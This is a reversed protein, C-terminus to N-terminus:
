RRLISPLRRFIFGVDTTPYELSAYPIHLEVALESYDETRMNPQNLVNLYNINPFNRFLKQISEKNLKNIRQQEGNRSNGVSLWKLLPFYVSDLWYFVTNGESTPLVGTESLSLATLPLKTLGLLQVGTIPVGILDLSTLCPFLACCNIEATYLEDFIKLDNLNCRTLPGEDSLSQPLQHSFRQSLQLVQEEKAPDGPIIFRPQLTQGMQSVKVVTKASKMKRSLRELQNSEFLLTHECNLFDLGSDQLKTVFDQEGAEPLEINTQHHFLLTKLNPYRQEGLLRLIMLLHTVNGTANSLDITHLQPLGWSARTLLAVLAAVCNSNDFQLKQLGLVRLQPYNCDNLYQYWSQDVLRNDNLYLAELRSLSKMTDFADMSEPSDGFQNHDLMFRRVHSATCANLMYTLTPCDVRAGLDINSFNITEFLDRNAGLHTILWLEAANRPLSTLQHSFYRAILALPQKQNERWLEPWKHRRRHNWFENVICSFRGSNITRNSDQWTQLSKGNFIDTKINFDLLVDCKHQNTVDQEIFWDLSNGFRNGRIDLKQLNRLNRWLRHIAGHRNSNSQMIRDTLKNFPFGLYELNPYSHSLLDAHCEIDYDNLNTWRVCLAQVDPRFIDTTIAKLLPDHEHHGLRLAFDLTHIKFRVEKLVRHMEQFCFELPGTIEGMIHLSYTPQEALEGNKIKRNILDSLQHFFIWTYRDPNYVHFQKIHPFISAKDQGSLVTLLSERNEPTIKLTPVWQKRECVTPYNPHKLQNASFFNNLCRLDPESSDSAPRDETCAFSFESVPTSSRTSSSEDYTNSALLLQYPIFFSFILFIKLYIQHSHKIIQIM